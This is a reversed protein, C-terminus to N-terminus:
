LVLAKVDKTQHMIAMIRSAYVSYQVGELEIIFDHDELLTYAAKPELGKAILKDAVTQYQDRNLRTM